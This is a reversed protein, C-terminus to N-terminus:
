KLFVYEENNMDEDLPDEGRLIIPPKIEKAKLKEWDLNKFFEHQKVKEITIRKDPRKNL